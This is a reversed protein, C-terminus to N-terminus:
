ARSRSTKMPARVRRTPAAQVTPPRCRLKSTRSRTLCVRNSARNTGVMTARTTPIRGQATTRSPTRRPSPAFALLPSRMTTWSSIVSPLKISLIPTPRKITAVLFRVPPSMRRRVAVTQAEPDATPRLLRAVRHISVRALPAFQPVRRAARGPAARAPKRSAELAVNTATTVARKGMKLRAMMTRDMRRVATLARARVKRRRRM